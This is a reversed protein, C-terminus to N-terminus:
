FGNVEWYGGKDPGRRKIIGKKRLQEINREISRETVGIMEAMEPMTIKNNSKILKIIAESTKGSMKGSMKGSTKGSMKESSEYGRPFSASFFYNIEFDARPHGAETMAQQIRNIGTGLKEIYEARLFMAALLPNRTVSKKGLEERTMGKPLGGPNTIDVRDDFIEVMINAGKEFYNRHVVANVLAERLATEPLELIENRQLSSIEYKLKLHKKLFIMAEEVNTILDYAMDKRDLVHIKERGKYLVCTVISQPLYHQTHHGLLLVGANNLKFSTRDKPTM